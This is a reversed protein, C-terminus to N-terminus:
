FMRRRPTLRRLRQQNQASLNGNSLKEVAASVAAAETRRLAECLDLAAAQAESTLAAQTVFSMALDLAAKCPAKSLEALVMKREDDRDCLDLANILLALRDEASSDEDMVAMKIYGRLALIRYTTNEDQKAIKEALALGDPTAWNSLARVAETKVQDNDSGYQKQVYALGADQALRAQIRLVSMQVASSSQDAQAILTQAVKAATDLRQAVVVIADELTRQPAQVLRAVLLDIDQNDGLVKITDLAANKVVRNNDDLAKRVYVMADAMQRDAVAHILAVRVVSDSSSNLLRVIEDNVGTNSLQNLSAVAVPQVTRDSKGAFQALVSVCSTDGMQGLAKLAALQVSESDSQVAKKLTPLAVSQGTQALASVLLVQAGESLSNFKSVIGKIQTEDKLEAVLTLATGLLAENNQAIIDSIMQGVKAPEIRALGQMAGIRVFNSVEATMLTEYLAAADSKSRASMAEACQLLAHYVETKVAGTVKDKATNLASVADDTGITGLSRAAQTALTENSQSLYGAIAGVARNTGRHGLTAVIGIQVKDPVDPLVAMLQQDVVRSPITELALRAMYETEPNTLLNMLVPVSVESGILRLKRCLSDKAALTLPGEFLAVMAQELKQQDTALESADRVIADLQNLADRSGSFEYKAVEQLVTTVDDWNLNSASPMAIPTTDCELDGLAFQIGALYHALVAANWTIPHNHGLSGYFIRGEGYDKIWSLGTDADSPKVGRANATRSDSMDLTMLVRQKTRDYYPADTRYIEDSLKFTLEKFSAMLPHTPDDIKIAWTGNATWPHGTFTGGMMHQAEPWGNFNDTAAHIGIIGKGGKVFSMLAEKQSDTFRLSTTNNFCIGDFPKLKETDFIAIDKSFTVKFAGSKEAMIELAKDWYPISSHNFGQCLNFVLLHREAKPQVACESPAAERIKAIEEDSVGLAITAGFVVCILSKFWMSTKM